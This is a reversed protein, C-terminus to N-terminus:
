ENERRYNHSNGEIIYCSQIIRDTIRTYTAKPPRKLSDATINSTFVTPFNRKMRADLLNFIQEAGYDSLTEPNFDDIILFRVSQLKTFEDRDPEDYQGLKAIQWQEKFLVRFLRDTLANALCMAAYTKGSGSKGCLFMGKGEELRKSLSDAYKQCAKIYVNNRTKYSSFTINESVSNRHTAGSEDDFGWCELKRQWRLMKSQREKEAKRINDAECDCLCAVKVPRGLPFRRTGDRGYICPVTEKRKGCTGCVIVKLDPMDKFYPEYRDGEVFVASDKANAVANKIITDYM